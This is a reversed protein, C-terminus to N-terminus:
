FIQLILIPKIQFSESCHYISKSVIVAPTKNPLYKRRKQPSREYATSNKTWWHYSYPSLAVLIQFKFYLYCMHMVAQWSLCHLAVPAFQLGPTKCILFTRITSCYKPMCYRRNAWIYHRLVLFFNRYHLIKRLDKKKKSALQKIIYGMKQKKTKM